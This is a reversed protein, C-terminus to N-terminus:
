AAAGKLQNAALGLATEIANAVRMVAYLDINTIAGSYNSLYSESRPSVGNRKAVLYAAMEAEVEQEAQPRDRRDRIKLGGDEGLHGLYLHALEHAITVLRTPAPHNANFALQYHNRRKPDESRKVLKIWGARADGADLPVLEVGLRAVQDTISNFRAETLTGLAPFAYASEPLERGETDLIDFVFDVPGMTRLVVLPRTGQKPVRGFREFWERAPAAYSLGPKQIHLLLGNFPAFRRLKVTFALLEKVAESTEYLRTAAILQEILARDSDKEERFLERQDTVESM